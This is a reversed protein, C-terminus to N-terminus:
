KLLMIALITGGILLANDKIFGAVGSDSTAVATTGIVAATGGGGWSKLVGSVGSILAGIVSGDQEVKVSGDSNRPVTSGVIPEYLPNGAADTISKGNADVLPRVQEPTYTKASKKPDVYGTGTLDAISDNIGGLTSKGWDTQTTVYYTGAGVAAATLAAETTSAGNKKSVFFSILALILTIWM